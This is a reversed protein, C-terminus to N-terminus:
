FARQRGYRWGYSSRLLFVDCIPRLWDTLHLFFYLWLVYAVWLRAGGRSHWLCQTCIFGHEVVVSAVNLQLLNAFFSTPELLDQDAGCTASAELFKRLHGHMQLRVSNLLWVFAWAAGLEKSATSAEFIM